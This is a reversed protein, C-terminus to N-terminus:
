AEDVSPGFPPGLLTCTCTCTASNLNVRCPEPSLLILVFTNLKHQILELGVVAADREIMCPQMM